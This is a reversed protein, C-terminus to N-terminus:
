PVVVPISSFKGSAPLRMGLVSIQGGSATDFEITGSQNVTAPFRDTLAFASHGNASLAIASSEIQTGTSDRIVVQISVGNASANAIAVGTALGNSNDFALVYASARRWEAPVITEQQNPEYRLRSFGSV